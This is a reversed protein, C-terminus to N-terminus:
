EKLWVLAEEKTKFFRIDEKDAVDMIFSAIVKVVPNMGFIAVKGIGEGEFNKRIRERTKRSPKGVKNADILVDMKGEVITKFKNIASVLIIGMEDDAEGVVAGYLINDEGLYFRNGGIWFKRESVQKIESPREEM